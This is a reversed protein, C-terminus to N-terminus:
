EVQPALKGIREQAQAVSFHARGPEAGLEVARRYSALALRPQGVHELAVALNYAYDPNAPDLHHAQSYAQQAPAWRSQDAYLNGLTFYLFPLPERAILQKLRSEAALPDAKGFLGIMGTQALANQPDLGLVEMYRKSAEETRGSMVAISALGLLADINRPEAQLLREYTRQAPGLQDGQFETYAAALLPNVTPASRGRSVKITDRPPAPAPVAAPETRSPQQAAAPPSPPAAAPEPLLLPAPPQPAPAAPAPAASPASPQPLPVGASPAEALPSVPARPAVPRQPAFPSPRSVQLYVYTGFVLAILAAIAAIVIVPHQRLFAGAGGGQGAGAARLVTAAQVQQEQSPTTATPRQPAVRPPPEPRAPTQPSAPGPVAEIIPELSLESRPAQSAPAVPPAVAPAAAVPEARADGRDKAAKELAKM